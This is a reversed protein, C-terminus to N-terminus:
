EEGLVRHKIYNRVVEAIREDKADCRLGAEFFNIANDLKWLEIKNGDANLRIVQKLDKISSVM